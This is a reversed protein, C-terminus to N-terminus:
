IVFYLQYEMEIMAVKRMVPKNFVEIKIDGCLPLAQPLDFILFNDGRVVHDPDSTHLKVKLQNVVFFLDPVILLVSVSSPACSM